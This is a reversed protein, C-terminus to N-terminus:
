RPLFRHVSEGYPSTSAKRTISIGGQRGASNNITARVDDTDFSFLLFSLLPQRKLLIQKRILSSETHTHQSPLVLLSSGGRKVTHGRFSCYAARKQKHVHIRPVLTRRPPAGNAWQSMHLCHYDGIIKTQYGSIPTWRDHRHLRL